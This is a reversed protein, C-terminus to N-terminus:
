QVGQTLNLIKPLSLAQLVKVPREITVINQLKLNKRQNRFQDIKMNLQDHNRKRNEKEATLHGDDNTADNEKDGGVSRPTETVTPRGM